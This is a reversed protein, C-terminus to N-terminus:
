AKLRVAKVTVGNTSAVKLAMVQAEGAGSVVVEVVLGAIASGTKLKGFVSFDATTADLIATGNHQGIVEMTQKNASGPQAITLLWMAADTADVLVTDITTSTTVNTAISPTVSSELAHDLKSIAATLSDTDTIVFHSTYAALTGDAQIGLASEIRDVEAQLASDANTRSIVEVALAANNSTVYDNFNNVITTDANTRSIVEVALAADNSDIYSALAAAGTEDGLIRAAIETAEADTARIIENALDDAVQTILNTYAASVKIGNTGLTLSDGDVQIALRADTGISAVGAESLWLGSNTGLDIGIEDTPLQAVGAGLNVNLVNGVKSIGVGPLVPTGGNFQVFEQGNFIWASLEYITGNLVVLTDGEQATATSRELDKAVTWTVATSASGAVYVENSGATLATFLVRDGDVITHGDVVVDAGTPLEASVSDRADAEKRYTQNSMVNQVTNWNVADTGASPADNITIHTGTSMVLNGTMTGGLVKDLKTADLLHDAAVQADLATLASIVTTADAMYNSGSLQTFTGTTSLGIAAEISDIEALLVLENTNSADSLSKLATDLAQINANIKSAASIYTGNVVNTGLESDLKGVATSLNDGDVVFNTSTYATPVSGSTGKGIFARIFGLEDLSTKDSKVWISGNYTLQQGALDGFNVYLTDSQTVPNADLVLTADVGVTGAVIFINSEQGAISTFLLRSGTTIPTGQLTGAAIAVDAEALSAYSTTIYLDAPERWSAGSVMSTVYATSAQLSWKDTGAGDMIKNYTDGTALDQYISGVGVITSDTSGTGPVGTGNIWQAGNLEMGRAIEFFQVSM